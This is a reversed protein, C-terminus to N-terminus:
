RDYSRSIVAYDAALIWSLTTVVILFYVSLAFYKQGPVFSADLLWTSRVLTIGIVSVGSFSRIHIISPVIGAVVLLAAVILSSGDLFSSRLSHLDNRSGYLAQAFIYFALSIPWVTVILRYRMDRLEMQKLM